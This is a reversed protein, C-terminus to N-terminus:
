RQRELVTIVLIHWLMWIEVHTRPGSSLDEHRYFLWKITWTIQGAGSIREKQHDFSIENYACVVNRKDM